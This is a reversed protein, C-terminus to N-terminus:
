LLAYRRVPSPSPLLGVRKEPEAWGRDGVSGMQRVESGLDMKPNM